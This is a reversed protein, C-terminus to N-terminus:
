QQNQHSCLHKPEQQPTQLTTNHNTSHSSKNKKHSSLLLLSRNMKKTPTRYIMMSSVHYLATRIVHYHCVVAITQESRNTALYQISQQIQDKRLVKPTQDHCKPWNEPKLSISDIHHTTRDYGIDSLVDKMSRPINEPIMTGIERLNYDIIIPTHPFAIYATQLARTLPSSVVLEITDILNHDHFRDRLEKAQIMGHDSLGCDILTPDIRRTKENVTQGLSEGHRIFYITKTKSTTPINVNSPHKTPTVSVDNHYKDDCLNSEPTITVGQEEHLGNILSKTHIEPRSEASMVVDCKACL